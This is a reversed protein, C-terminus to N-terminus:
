GNRNWGVPSCFSGYEEGTWVSFNTSHTSSARRSCDPCNFYRSATLFCLCGRCKRSTVPDPNFIDEPHQKGTGSCDPCSFGDWINGVGDKYFWYVSHNQRRHRLRVRTEGCVDCKAYKKISM